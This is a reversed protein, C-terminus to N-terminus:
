FNEKKTSPRALTAIRESRKRQREIEDGLSFHKPADRWKSPEVTDIHAQREEDNVQNTAEARAREAPTYCVDCLAGDYANPVRWQGVHPIPKECATETHDMERHWLSDLMVRMDFEETEIRSRSPGDDLEAVPQSRPGGDM